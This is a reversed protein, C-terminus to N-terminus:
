GFLRDILLGGGTGVFIGLWYSLPHVRFREENKSV